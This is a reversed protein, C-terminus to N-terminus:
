RGNVTPLQYEPFFFARVLRCIEDRDQTLDVSIRRLDLSRRNYSTADGGHQCQAAPITALLGPRWERVLALGEDMFVDYLRRATLYHPLPATRQAIVAGTDVGADMYHLTVGVTTEGNLIPWISTYVGRYRPLASFHINYLRSSAFREVPLIRDYELSVLVIDPDSELTDLAVVPVGLM